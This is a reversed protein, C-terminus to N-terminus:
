PDATWGKLLEEPTLPRTPAEAKRGRRHAEETLRIKERRLLEAREKRCQVLRVRAVPVWKDEPPAQSLYSEWATVARAYADVRVSGMDTKRAVMWHGLAAYWHRDYDPLFFWGREDSLQEDQADYSRALRVSELGGELDGSRDLAVALGWLTTPGSGFMLYDTSLLALAERYGDVAATIDGLLMHAEARNALLRAREHPMAQTHLAEGYHAIEEEVRGLHAYDVALQAHVRAHLMPPPSERAISELLAASKAPLGLFGYVEALQCRAFLDGSTRVGAEELLLSARTLYLQSLSALEQRDFEHRARAGRLHHYKLQLGEAEAILEARRDVAPSRARTWVSPPDASALSASLLVAAAVGIGWRRGSV